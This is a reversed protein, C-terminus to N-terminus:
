MPQRAGRRHLDAKTLRLPQGGREDDEAADECSSADDEEDEEEVEVTVDCEEDSVVSVVKTRKPAVQVYWPHSM